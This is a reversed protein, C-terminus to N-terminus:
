CYRKTETGEMRRLRRLSGGHLDAAVGERQGVRDGVRVAGRVAQVEDGERALAEVGCLRGAVARVGQVVVVVDDVAGGRRQEHLETRVVSVLVGAEDAIVLQDLMSILSEFRPVMIISELKGIQSNREKM